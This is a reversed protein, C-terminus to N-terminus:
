MKERSEIPPDTKLPALAFHRVVPEKSKGARVPRYDEVVAELNGDLLKGDIRARISDPDFAAVVQGPFKDFEPWLRDVRMTAGGVGPAAMTVSFTGASERALIVLTASAELRADLVEYRDSADHYLKVVRTYLFLDDGAPTRLAFSISYIEDAPIVRVDGELRQASINAEPLDASPIPKRWAVISRGDGLDKKFIVTQQEALSQVSAALVVLLLFLRM